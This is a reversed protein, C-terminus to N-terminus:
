HELRLEFPQKKLLAQEKEAPLTESQEMWASAAARDHSIWVQIRAEVVEARLTPDSISEAWIMASEPEEWVLQRTFGSIANNRGEGVPLTDLWEPAQVKDKDAWSHAISAWAKGSMEAPADEAMQAAAAPDQNALARTAVLFRDARLQEPGAAAFKRLATADMSELVPFVGYLLGKQTDAPQAELWEMAASPDRESWRRLASDAANIRSRADGKQALAFALARQPDRDALLRVAADTLESQEYYGEGPQPPRAGAIFETALAEFHEPDKRFLLRLEAQVRKRPELKAIFEKALEPDMNPLGPLIFDMDLLGDPRQSNQSALLSQPDAELQGMMIGTGAIQLAYPHVSAFKPGDLVARAGVPDLEGWRAFLAVGLAPQLLLTKMGLIREMARPMYEVPLDLIRSVIDFLEHTSFQGGDLKAIMALTADAEAASAAPHVRKYDPVPAPPPEGAEMRVAPAPSRGAAHLSDAQQALASAESQQQLLPLVALSAAILTGAAIQKGTNMAHLAHNFITITSIGTAQQLAGAAIKGSLMATAAKATGATVATGLALVSLSVGRRRLIAALKELARSTQKQCADASKGLRAGMAEFSLRETYRLMVADRDTLSLRELAEDLHPAAAALLTNGEDPGPAFTPDTLATMVRRHKLERRLANSAELVAARHLWGALCPHRLLAGGRRALLAFVTM